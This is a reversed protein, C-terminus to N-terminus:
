GLNFWKISLSILIIVLLFALIAILLDLSLKFGYNLGNISSPKFEEEIGEATNEDQTAKQAEIQRQQLDRLTGITKRLDESNTGLATIVDKHQEKLTKIVEDKGKVREQLAANEINLVEIKKRIDEYDRELKEVKKRNFSPQVPISSITSDLTTKKIKEDPVIVHKVKGVLEYKLSGKKIRKHVAQVSISEKKAYDKIKMLGM